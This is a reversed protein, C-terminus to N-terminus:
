KYEKYYKLGLRVNEIVANSSFTAGTVADIDTELAEDVSLGNWRELLGNDVVRKFFGPTESNELAEIKVVKDKEITIILPTPGIYGKVDTSLTTTNVTYIGNKKTLVGDSVTCSILLIAGCLVITCFLAILTKKKMSNILQISIIKGFRVDRQKIAKGMSFSM